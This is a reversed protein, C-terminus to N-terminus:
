PAGLAEVTAPRGGVDVTGSVGLRLRALAAGGAHLGAVGVAKGGQTVPAFSEFDGRLRHLGYRAQGRAELRAMIEQGVYCGKRYSIADELGLEQLLYGHFRDASVDPLGAAVRAAHLEMPPVAEGLLPRVAAWDGALLQLDLGPSGTRNTRALLLEGHGPGALQQVDGGRPDFGPWSEEWLHVAILDVPTLRVDEFIIYRRLRAELAEREDEHVQVLADEARRYVPACHEVQGRVNLFCALRRLPPAGRLDATVQGQLFAVHDAGSLRLGACPLRTHIM